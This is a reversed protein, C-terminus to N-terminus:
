VMTTPLLLIPRISLVPSTSLTEAFPASSYYYYYLSSHKEAFSNMCAHMCAHWLIAVVLFPSVTDACIDWSWMAVANWKKIEFRPANAKPKAAPQPHTCYLFFLHSSPVVLVDRLSNTCRARALNTM